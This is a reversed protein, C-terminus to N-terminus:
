EESANVLETRYANFITSKSIFGIYKRNRVVPLNWAGCENFKKMVSDMKEDGEIISPPMTMLTKVM